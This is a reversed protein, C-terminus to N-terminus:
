DVTVKASAPGADDGGSYYVEVALPSQLQAFNPTSVAFRGSPDLQTEYTLDRQAVPDRAVVLVTGGFAPATGTDVYRVRGSGGDFDFVLEYLDVKRRAWVDITAGGIVQISDADSSPPLFAVVSTVNPERWLRGEAMDAFQPLDAICEVMLDFTRTEAAALSIHTHEIYTRFWPLRQEAHILAKTPRDIYPNTVNIPVRRRSFPSGALTFVATYNSQAVNNNPNVEGIAPNSPDTYPSIRVVLCYHASQVLGLWGTPGPPTWAMSFERSMGADIDGFAWGLFTEPGADSITFDKVWFGVKVNRANFNGSNKVTAVITNDHGAWPIAIGLTQALRNDIRIDPSQWIEGGPWPRISLDPGNPWAPVPNPVPQYRVRVIASDDDASVVNLLFTSNAQADLEEYDQGVALDPGQGDGDDALLRIPKRAVPPQYWGAVVDTGVVARDQPPLQDAVQTPGSDGPEINQRSRYEFYYRWGDAVDIELGARQNPPPGAADLLEAARIVLQEDVPNELLFNYNRLWNRDVWGLVVRHPLSLGPMNAENSMIDWGALERPDDYLDGLGLNHGFEHTLTSVVRRGANDVATWEAPMAIWPFTKWWWAFLAGPPVPQTLMYTGSASEPWIFLQMTPSNPDFPNVPLPAGGAPSAFVVSVSDAQTFDIANQAAWMAEGILNRTGGVFFRGDGSADVYDAWVGPVIVTALGALAVTLRGGSQESWFAGVSRRVGDAELVGDILADRYATATSAPLTTDSTSAIILAVRRIGTVPPGAPFQFPWVNNISSGWAAGQAYLPNPGIWARSPGDNGTIVDTVIFSTSAVVRKRAVEGAQLTFTGTIPGALLIIDPNVPDFTDDRSISVDGFEAGEAISFKLDEFAIGSLGLDVRVRAYGGRYIPENPTVLVVNALAINATPVGAVTYGAAVFLIDGIAAPTRPIGPCNTVRRRLAPDSVNVLVVAGSHTEVIALMTRGEDLWCCFGPGAFGDAIMRRAGTPIDVAFLQGTRTETVFLTRDDSSIAMGAAGNMNRSVTEVTNDTLNIRVLRNRPGAWGMGDLRSTSLGRQGLSATISIPAEKILRGAVAYAFERSGDVVIQEIGLLGRVIPRAFRPDANAVRSLWITGHDDAVLLAEGDASAALAGPTSWGRGIVEKSAPNSPDILLIEGTSRSSVILQDRTATAGYADATKISSSWMSTGTKLKADSRPRRLQTEPLRTSSKM